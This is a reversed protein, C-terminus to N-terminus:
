LRESEDDDGFFQLRLRPSPEGAFSYYAALIFSQISASVMPTPCLEVM